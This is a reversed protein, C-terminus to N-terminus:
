SRGFGALYDSVKRALLRTVAPRLVKVAVKLAGLALGATLIGETPERKHRARPRPPKATRAPMMAMLTGIALAVGVWVVTQHQFSQRFKRPFDLEYRVGEIDRELRDRSHAVEERLQKLSKTQRPEQAM